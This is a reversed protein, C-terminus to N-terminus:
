AFERSWPNGGSQSFSPHGSLSSWSSCPHLWTWPENNWTGTCVIHTQYLSPQCTSAIVEALYIISGEDSVITIDGCDNFYSANRLLNFQKFNKVSYICSLDFALKSDNESIYQYPWLKLRYSSKSERDQSKTQADDVNTSM